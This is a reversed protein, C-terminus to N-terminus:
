SHARTYVGIDTRLWTWVCTFACCPPLVCVYRRSFATLSPRLEGLRERFVNQTYMQKQTISIKRSEAEDPHLMNAGDIYAPM